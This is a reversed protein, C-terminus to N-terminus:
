WASVRAAHRAQSAAFWSASRPTHSHEQRGTVPRGAQGYASATSTASHKPQISEVTLTSSSSRASWNIVGRLGLLM